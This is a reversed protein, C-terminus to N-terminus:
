PRDRQAPDEKRLHPHLTSLSQQTACTSSSAPSASPVLLVFFLHPLYVSLFDTFTSVASPLLAGDLMRLDAIRSAPLHLLISLLFHGSECARWSCCRGSGVSFVSYQILHIM